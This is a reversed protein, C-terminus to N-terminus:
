HHPPLPRQQFVNIGNTSSNIDVGAILNRSSLKSLSGVFRNANTICVRRNKIAYITPGQIVDLKYDHTVPCVDWRVKLEITFDYTM